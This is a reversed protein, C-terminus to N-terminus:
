GDEWGQLGKLAGMMMMVDGSGAAEHAHELAQELMAIAPRAEVRERGRLDDYRLKLRAVRATERSLQEALNM